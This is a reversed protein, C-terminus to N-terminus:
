GYNQIFTAATLTRTTYITKNKFKLCTNKTEKKAFM